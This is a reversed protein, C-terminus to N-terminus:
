NEPIQSSCCKHKEKTNIEAFENRFGDNRFSFVWEKKSRRSCKVGEIRRKMTEGIICIIGGIWFTAAAGSIIIEPPNPGKTIVGIIALLALGGGFKEFKDWRSIRRSCRDCLSVSLKKPTSRSFAVRAGKRINIEFTSSVESTLETGCGICKRPWVVHDLAEVEVLVNKM